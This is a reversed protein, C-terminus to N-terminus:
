EDGIQWDPFLKNMTPIMREFATYQQNYVSQRSDYGTANQIKDWTMSKRYRLDIVRAQNGSLNSQTVLDYVQDKADSWLKCHKKKRENIQRYIEDPKSGAREADKLAGMEQLRLENMTRKYTITRECFAKVRKAAETM